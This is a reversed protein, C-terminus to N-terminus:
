LNSYEAPKFVCNTAEDGYSPALPWNALFFVSDFGTDWCESATAQFGAPLDGGTARVDSRGTGDQAWRSKVAWRAGTQAMQPPVTHVFQMSGGAGPTSRYRYTVDVRQGPRNDDNVQRFDADIEVTATLSARAYTYHASGVEREALPLTAQADWDLTFDGSGFGEIARGNGDVSAAHTGSLVVTFAGTSVRRDRGALEYSYKHDGLHRVTLKWSVPDLAGHGPGWVATDGSVETPPLSVVAKVIALAFAGGGNIVGSVTRTLRYTDATLGRLALQHIEVADSATLAQGAQAPVRTEVTEQRPVGNRFDDLEPEVPRCAGILGALAIASFGLEYRRTM